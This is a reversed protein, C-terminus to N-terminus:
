RLDSVHDVDDTLWGHAYPCAHQVAFQAVKLEDVHVDQGVLRSWYVPHSVVPSAFSRSGFGELLEELSQVQLHHKIEKVTNWNSTNSGLFSPSYMFVANSVLSM